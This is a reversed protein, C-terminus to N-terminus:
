PTGEAKAITERAAKAHELLAVADKKLIYYRDPDDSEDLSRNFAVFAKDLRILEALCENPIGVRWPVHESM